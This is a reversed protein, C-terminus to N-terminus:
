PTASYGITPGDVAPYVVGPVIQERNYEASASSNVTSDNWIDEDSADYNSFEDSASNAMVFGLDNQLEAMLIEANAVRTVPMGAELSSSPYAIYDDLALGNTVEYEDTWEDYAGLEIYRQELTDSATAIWVWPTDANADKIYYAPLMIADKNENDSITGPEIYVHEGLVLGTSDDVEIYFPYTTSTTMDSGPAFMGQQQDSNPNDYDIKTIKGTWCVGDELRSHVIVEMGTQLDNRNLENVEGQIRFSETDMITIYASSGSSSTMMIPSMAQSVNNTSAISMIRGSIPATVEVIDLSSELAEIEATKAKLKYESERLDAEATEIQITLSLRTDDDTAKEYNQNLEQINKENSSIRAEYNEKDLYMRDLSLQMAETDYSFLIDGKKVIDGEQVYVESVTKSDDKEVEATKDAVVKGPYMSVNGLYGYGIIDSVAAVSVSEEQQAACGAGLVLIIVACVFLLFARRFM